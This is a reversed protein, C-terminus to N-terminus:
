DTSRESRWKTAYPLVLLYLGTFFFFALPAVALFGVGTSYKKLAVAVINIIVAVTFAMSLWRHTQRIWKNWNM